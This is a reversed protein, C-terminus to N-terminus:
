KSPFDTILLTSESTKGALWAYGAPLGVPRLFRDMAANLDASSKASVSQGYSEGIRANFSQLTKM